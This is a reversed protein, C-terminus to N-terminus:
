RVGLARVMLLAFSSGAHPMRGDIVLSLAEEFPILHVRLDAEGPELRATGHDLRTALFAHDRHNTFSDACNVTGLHRWHLASIGTEERLERAAAGRPDSDAADIRGAPLRWQTQEHTYIWQRTVAVRGDEALAVTTVSGSSVVHDYRGASGDPRVAADRRVDFWPSSFVSASRLRSWTRPPPKPGDDIM